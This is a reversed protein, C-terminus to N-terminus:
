KQYTDVIHKMAENISLQQYLIEDEYVRLRSLEPNTDTIEKKNLEDSAKGVFYYASYAFLAAIIVM